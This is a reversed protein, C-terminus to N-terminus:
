LFVELIVPEVKLLTENISTNYCIKHLTVPSLLISLFGM